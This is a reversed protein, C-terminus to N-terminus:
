AVGGLALLQAFSAGPRVLAIRPGADVGPGVIAVPVPLGEVEVVKSVSLCDALSKM